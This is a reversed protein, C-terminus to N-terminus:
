NTNAQDLVDQLFADLPSDPTKGAANVTMDLIARSAQMRIREDLSHQSLHVLSLAAEPAANRIIENATKVPDGDHKGLIEKEQALRM